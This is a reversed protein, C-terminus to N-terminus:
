DDDDGTYKLDIWVPRHDSLYESTLRYDHAFWEFRKDNDFDIIGVDEGFKPNAKFEDYAGKSIIVQDYINRSQSATTSYKDSPALRHYLPNFSQNDRKIAELLPFRYFQQHNNIMLAKWAKDGDAGLHRNLDGVLIVDKETPNSAVKKLWDSIQANEVIRGESSNGHPKTYLHCNVVIFDFNGAKFKAMQPVRQFTRKGDNDHDPDHPLSDISSKIEVPKRWLFATVEDGEDRESIRYYYYKTGYFEAAKNLLERIRQVQDKGYSNPQVEQLCILDANTKLLINTITILSRNHEDNAGLNAINFTAIRIENDSPNSTENDFSPSANTDRVRRNLNSHEFPFLNFERNETEEVSNAAEFRNEVDLNDRRSMSLLSRPTSGSNPASDNSDTAFIRSVLTEDLVFPNANGQFAKIMESRKKEKEDAPDNMHWQMLTPIQPRFWALNINREEYMTYFYFLARAVNGKHDERPEFLGSVSESYDDINSSPIGTTDDKDNWWKETESDVIEGFPYNGREGNVSNWTPFLHHLDTKMQNKNTGNRFKSQAWTHETNVIQHNPIGTTPYISGTYVLRVKGDENDIKSFMEERAERYSFTRTPKYDTRLIRRLESGYKGPAIEDACVPLAILLLLSIVTALRLM